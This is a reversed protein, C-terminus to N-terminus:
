ILWVIIIAMMYLATGLKSHVAMRGPVTQAVVAPEDAEEILESLRM